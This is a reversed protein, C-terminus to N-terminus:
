SIHSGKVDMALVKSIISSMKAQTVTFGYFVYDYEYIIMINTWLSIAYAETWETYTNEKAM